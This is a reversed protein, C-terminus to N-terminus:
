TYLGLLAYLQGDHGARSRHLPNYTHCHGTMDTGFFHYFNEEWHNNYSPNQLNGDVRSQEIQTMNMESCTESCHGWEKFIWSGNLYNRTSCWPNISDETSCHFYTKMKKTESCFSERQVEISCDPYSFPFSCPNGIRDGGVTNCPYQEQSKLTLHSLMNFVASRNYTHQQVWAKVDEVKLHQRSNNQDFFSVLPHQYESYMRNKCVTISPFIISGEDLVSVKFSHFLKNCTM